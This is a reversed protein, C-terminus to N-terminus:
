TCSLLMRLHFIQLRIHLYYTTIRDSRNQVKTLFVQQNRATSQALLSVRGTDGKNGMCYWIGAAPLQCLYVEAQHQSSFCCLSHWCEEMKVSYRQVWGCGQAQKVKWAQVMSRGQKPWHFQTSSPYILYATNISSCFVCIFLSVSWSRKKLNNFCM